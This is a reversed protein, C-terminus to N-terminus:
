AKRTTKKTQSKYDGESLVFGAAELRDAQAQTVLVVDGARAPTVNLPVHENDRHGVEFDYVAVRRVTGGAKVTQGTLEPLYREEGQVSSDLEVDDGDRMARLAAARDPYETM